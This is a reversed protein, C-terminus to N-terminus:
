FCVHRLMANRIFSSNHHQLLVSHKTVHILRWFIRLRVYERTGMGTTLLSHHPALAPTFHPERPRAPYLSRLLASRQRVAGAGARAGNGLDRVASACRIDAVDRDLKTSDRNSRKFKSSPVCDRNTLQITIATDLDFLFIEHFAKIWTTSLNNNYKIM